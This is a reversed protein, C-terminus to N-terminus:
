GKGRKGKWDFGKRGCIAMCMDKLERLGYYISDQNETPAFEEQALNPKEGAHAAKLYQMCDNIYMCVLKEFTFRPWHQKWEPTKRM